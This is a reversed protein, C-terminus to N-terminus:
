LGGGDAAVSQVTRWRPVVVQVTDASCRPPPDALVAARCTHPDDAYACESVQDNWAECREVCTVLGAFGGLVAVICAAIMLYMRFDAWTM